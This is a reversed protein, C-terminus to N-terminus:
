LTNKGDKDYMSKRIIQISNLVKIFEMKPMNKLERLNQIFVEILIDFNDFNLELMDSALAGDTLSLRTTDRFGSSAITLAEKDEDLVTKFLATSVLMPLHSILCAFKDHDLPPMIVPKAGMEIILNELIGCKANLIWKAGFFLEKFSSNFGSFETGAMPHSGIFKYPRIIEKGNADFNVFRKLSSVDTVICNKSVINELTDLTKLTESMKTCVFVVDCEKVSNIDPSSVDCFALAEKHSSKSVGILSYGKSHLSKLISGGILGLGIVGIKLSSKSNTNKMTEM